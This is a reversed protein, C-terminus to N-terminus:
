YKVNRASLMLPFVGGGIKFYVCGGEEVSCEYANRAAEYANWRLEYANRVVCCANGRVEYANGM